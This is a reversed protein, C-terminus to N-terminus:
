NCIIDMVADKNDVIGYILAEVGMRALGIKLLDGISGPTKGPLLVLVKDGPVTFTAMGHHFFDITLEQDEKTFFIRKPTGTTGSTALTVIRQIDGQKVCIMRNGHNRIDTADTFPLASISELTKCDNPDIDNLLSQYFASNNKAYGITRRFAELQYAELSEKSLALANQGIKNGIWAELPTKEMFKM